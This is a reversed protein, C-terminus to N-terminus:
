HTHIFNSIPTPPIFIHYSSPHPPIPLSIAISSSIFYVCFFICLGVRCLLYIHKTSTWTLGSLIQRRKSCSSICQHARLSVKHPLTLRDTTLSSRSKSPPLYPPIYLDAPQPQLHSLLTPSESANLERAEFFGPPYHVVGM